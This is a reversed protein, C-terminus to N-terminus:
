VMQSCGVVLHKHSLSIQEIKIFDGNNQTKTMQFLVTMIKSESENEYVSDSVSSM